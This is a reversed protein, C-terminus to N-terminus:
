MMQLFFWLPIYILSREGYEDKRFVDRTVVVGTKLKENEMFEMLGSIDGKGPHERYKVEVPIVKRMDDFVFDVEFKNKWYYPEFSPRSERGKKILHWAVLNEATKGDDMDLTLARRLGEEWFYLKKARKEAAKRSPAYVDAVFIMMSSKLYFLYLKVTERDIGLRESLGSYTFRNTSIAAIDLVMKELLIPDKVKFVSVIDRFLILSFYDEVITRQWQKMDKIKFWEPFGGTNFYQNLFFLIDPKNSILGHYNKEIKEFDGIDDFDIKTSDTEINNFELYERFCLPFVDIFRIRGALSESADLYLITKSSGSIIFQCKAHADIYYKLQMQWDKMVHIEDLIFCTSAKEPDIGTIEHYVDVIEHINDIRGHLDDMKAYIIEEPRKTKLLHDIYQFLITTKGSRRIGSLCIIRELQRNEEIKELYEKRLNGRDMPTISKKEWWYNRKKLYSVLFEKDM